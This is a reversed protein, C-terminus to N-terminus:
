LLDSPPYGFEERFIASFHSLNKFGSDIAAETVNKGESEIMKKAKYLRYTKIYKGITKDTLATFKRYLQPRSIGIASCIDQIGFNEDHLQEDLLTNIRTMFQLEQKYDKKARQSVTSLVGLKQQMKKRAELLNNLKLFLEKENFPKVLYHDAGKELGSIKSPYDGRATLVVVPIHDTLIDNKLHNLLEFGDMQPMMVDTLIIDPIIKLAKELGIKGNSALEIIYQEELITVLYEIVDKNDEVILLIPKKFSIDAQVDHETVSEKGPVLSHINGPHIHSIGHDEELKATRTVPLLVLFESGNGPESIVSIEGKMLKIIENTLTLGLGTGPTQDYKDPVQYFREFIHLIAEKPIGRGTDAISINVMDQGKEVKGSVEVNIQGGKPTFKIANSILNALVQMLKEPDYDAFLPTNEIDAFLEVGKNEALSHFSGAIYQVYKKIDGQILNLQMSDAEIKSIDLMQNVLRLLIQSQTKIKGPGTRLWKDIKQEMQEAIGQIVTLPTRFEHSVNTYLLTKAEDLKKMRETEAKEFRSKDKMYFVTLFLICANVWVADLVFFINNLEPTIYDPTEIFPSLIGLFIITVGYIIFMSVTWRLNGALVSGMACNLGIFVFGLSTRLGGIQVLMVFTMLIVITYGINVVLDFRKANPYLKLAVLHILILAFPFWITEWVQFFLAIITMVSIGLFNVFMWIWAWRKRLLAEPELGPDYLYNDIWKIIRTNIPAKM